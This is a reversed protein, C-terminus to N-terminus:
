AVFALPMVLSDSHACVDREADFDPCLCGALSSIPVSSSPHFASSRTGRCQLEIKLIEKMGFNGAITLYANWQTGSARKGGGRNGKDFIACRWERFFIKQASRALLRKVAMSCVNAVIFPRNLSLVLSVM